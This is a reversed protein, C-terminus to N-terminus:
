KLGRYTLKFNVQFKKLQDTNIRIQVVFFFFCYNTNISTNTNLVFDQYIISISKSDKQYDDRM